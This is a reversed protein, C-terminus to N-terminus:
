HIPRLIADAEVPQGLPNIYIGWALTNCLEVGGRNSGFPPLSTLYAVVVSRPRRAVSKPRRAGTVRTPRDLPGGPKKLYTSRRPIGRNTYGWRYDGLAVSNSHLKMM